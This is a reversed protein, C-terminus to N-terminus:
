WSALAARRWEPTGSNDILVYFYSATWNIDNLKDTAVVDNAASPIKGVKRGNVFISNFTDRDTIDQDRLRAIQRVDKVVTEETTSKPYPQM